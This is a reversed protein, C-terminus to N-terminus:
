SSRCSESSRALLNDSHSQGSAIQTASHAVLPIGHWVSLPAVPLRPPSRTVHNRSDVEKGDPAVRDDHVSEEVRTKRELIRASRRVGVRTKGAKSEIRKGPTRLTRNKKSDKDRSKWAIERRKREMWMNFASTFIVYSLKSIHAKEVIRGAKSNSPNVAKAILSSIGSPILGLAGAYRDFNLVKDLATQVKADSHPALAVVKAVAPPGDFWNLKGDHGCVLGPSTWARSLDEMTLPLPKPPEIKCAAKHAYSWRTLAKELALSDVPYRDAAERNQVILVTVAARQRLSKNKHETYPQRFSSPSITPFSGAPFTCLVSSQEWKCVEDLVNGEELVLVIRTPLSTRLDGLLKEALKDLVTGVQPPYAVAMMGKWSINFADGLSGFVTDDERGSAWRTFRNNRHVADAFLEVSLSLKVRLIEQFGFLLSASKSLVCYHGGPGICDCLFFALLKKVQEVFEAESGTEGRQTLYDKALRRCLQLDLENPSILNVAFETYREPQQWKVVPRLAVERPLCKLIRDVDRRRNRIWLWNAPCSLAHRSDDVVQDTCWLCIREENSRKSHSHRARVPLWECLALVLFMVMGPTQTLFAWRRVHKCHSLLQSGRYEAIRGQHPQAKWKELNRKALLRRIEARLDGIVHRDESWFVVKEEGELMPPLVADRGHERADNALQDARANGISRYSRDGTHSRVHRITTAGSRAAILRALAIVVPRSGLRMRRGPTLRDFGKVAWIAAASDTYITLDVQAPTLQVAGLMAICEALHNNGSAKCVEAVELVTEGAVADKLVIGLGSPEPVGPLTSGDTFADIASVESNQWLQYRSYCPSWGLNWDVMRQKEEDVKVQKSWWPEDFVEARLDLGRMLFLSKLVRNSASRKRGASLAAQLVDNPKRQKRDSARLRAWMTRADLRNVSTLRSAVDMIRAASIADRPHILGTVHNFGTRSLNQGSYEGSAALITGILKSNWKDLLKDDFSAFRGALEIQPILVTNCVHIAMLIDLHNSYIKGRMINIKSSTVQL